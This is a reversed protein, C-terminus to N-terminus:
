HIEVWSRLLKHSGYRWLVTPAAQQKTRTHVEHVVEPDLGAMADSLLIGDVDAESFVAKFNDDGADIVKASLSEGELQFGRELCSLEWSAGPHICCTNRTRGDHWCGKIDALPEWAGRWRATSDVDDPLQTFLMRGRDCETRGGRSCTLVELSRMAFSRIEAKRDALDVGMREQVIQRLVRLSINPHVMLQSVAEFVHEELEADLGPETAFGSGRLAM